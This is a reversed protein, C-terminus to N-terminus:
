EFLWPATDEEEKAGGRIWWNWMDDETGWERSVDAIGNRKREEVCRGIARKYAAAIKPWRAMDRLMGERGAMPCMVCGIRKWGEDYLSCLPLERSACYAFVDDTSWDIIPHLYRKDPHTRCNEVMRRKGRRVSEAWRIGTAIIRGRDNHGTGRGEKLYECCFRVIRTPPMQKKVILQWMTMSPRHVQIDPYHKRIFHVLEPPDVTTLNYHADHKAGARRVLDLMVVSDKGGSFAVYLGEPPTFTRIREIALAVKDNGDFLPGIPNADKMGVGGSVALRSKEALNADRRIEESAEAWPIPWAHKCRPCRMWVVKIRARLDDAIPMPADFTGLIWPTISAHCEPCQTM